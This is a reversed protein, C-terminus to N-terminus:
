NPKLSLSGIGAAVNLGTQAQVSLPQLNIGKSFGGILVNAGLGTIVTAEATAGTYHGKLAGRKVSGPAFVAWAIQTTDTVGIDVGLKRIVGHYHEKRGGSRFVCDVAKASGIIYGVGGDVTCSLVGIKVGSAAQAPTVAAAAAVMGALVIKKMM